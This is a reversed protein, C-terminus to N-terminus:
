TSRGADLVRNVTTCAEFHGDTEGQARVLMLRAAVLERAVPGHRSVDAIIEDAVEFAWRADIM